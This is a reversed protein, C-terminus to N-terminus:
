KYKQKADGQQLKKKVQLYYGYLILSELIKSKLDLNCKSSTTAYMVHM